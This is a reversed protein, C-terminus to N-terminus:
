NFINEGTFLARKFQWARNCNGILTYSSLQGNICNTEIYDENTTIIKNEVDQGTPAIAAFRVDSFSSSCIPLVGNYNVTEGTASKGALMGQRIADPWLTSPVYLGTRQDPVLACDGAAWIDKYVSKLCSDVKVYGNDEAIPELWKQPSAGTANIYLDADPLEQSNSIFNIKNQKLKSIIYAGASSSIQQYIPYNQRDILIVEKAYKTCVDAFELGSLGAGIVCVRKYNNFSLHKVLDEVKKFNGIQKSDIKIKNPELGCTIILKNFQYNNYTTSIIKNTYDINNVFEHIINVDLSLLYEKTTWVIQEKTKLGLAYDAWFCKNTIPLDEASFVNIMSIKDVSRIAKIAALGAASAGIITYSM